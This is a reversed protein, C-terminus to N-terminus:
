LLLGLKIRELVMRYEDGIIRGVIGVSEISRMLYKVRDLSAGTVILWRVVAWGGWRQRRVVSAMAWRHCRIVSAM